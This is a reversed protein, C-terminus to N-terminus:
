SEEDDPLGGQIVGRLWPAKEDEPILPAELQRLYFDLTEKYRPLKNDGLAPLEKIQRALPERLEPFSKSLTHLLTFLVFSLAHIQGQQRCTQDSIEALTVTLESLIEQNM